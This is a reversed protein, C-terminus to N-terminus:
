VKKSGEYTKGEEEFGVSRASDKEENEKLGMEASWKQWELVARVLREPDRDTWSRDDMYVKTKRRCVVKWEDEPIHDPSTEEERAAKQREEEEVKWQGAAMWLNLAFPGFPDGQPTAM